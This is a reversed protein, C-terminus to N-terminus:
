RKCSLRLADRDTLGDVTTARGRLATSKGAPVIVTAPATCQVAAIPPDFAREDPRTGAGVGPLADIVAFLAGATTPDKSERPRQLRYGVVDIPSCSPDLRADPVHLCVAVHFSCTDPSGDHDCSPDGQRCIQRKSLIGKPNNPNDVFWEAACTRDARASGPTCMSVVSSSSCVGAESICTEVGNCLNADGCQIAVGQCTGLNCTDNESCPNGDDCPGSSIGVHACGDASSCSDTTCSNGDDCTRPDSVCTHLATCRENITCQDSDACQADTTCCAPMQAHACGSANVCSDATCPNLDDCNPESGNTCIGAACHEVGDCFNGDSCGTGDVVATHLCGSAPACTDATCANADDCDRPASTCSGGACHEDVTCADTDACDLDTTCCAAVASHVCGTSPSCSDTTCGNSDDCDPGQGSTCVGAQCTEAGNCFDLDNCSQGNPVPATVCGTEPNCSDTTCVHGDDCSLPDSTCANDVCRENVTCASTDACDADSACCGPISANVCGHLLDCSDATCPNHDDCDLSSGASCAGGDCAEVGNCVNGDACSIGNVVPTNVCGSMPNCSDTTCVNSDDCGLPDSICSGAACRENITCASIDACDADNTCCAPIPHNRCGDLPDCTDMTCGNGDDCDLSMGPTCNGASCIENGNCVNGDSCSLGDPQNAVQCGTMPDCSDSTCPNGDDCAIQTTVCAGAVCQATATCATVPCAASAGPEDDVVGNCDDDRDNCREAAGPFALGDSDDCDVAGCPAGEPSFGDRDVDTCRPSAADGYRLDFVTPCDLCFPVSATPLGTDKDLTLLTDLPRSTGLLANGAHYDIALGTKTGLGSAGADVATAVATTVDLTYLAQSANTWLYWTGDADEVIDGGEVDLVPGMTSGVRVADITTETVVPSLEIVGLTDLAEEIVYLKGDAYHMGCFFNMGVNGIVTVTTPDLTIQMVEGTFAIAYLLHDTAAALSLIEGLAADLELVPTLEGTTQNVRYIMSPTGVESDSVFVPTAAAGVRGAGLLVISLLLGCLPKLRTTM